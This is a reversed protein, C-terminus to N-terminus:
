TGSKGDALTNRDPPSHDPHPPRSPPPRPGPDLPMADPALRLDDFAPEGKMAIRRSRRELRQAADAPALDGRDRARDQARALKAHRHQEVTEDAGRRDRWQGGFIRGDDAMADRTM